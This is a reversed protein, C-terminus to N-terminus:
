SAFYFYQLSLLIAGLILQQPTISPCSHTSKLATLMYEIQGKALGRGGSFYYTGSYVMRSCCSKKLM